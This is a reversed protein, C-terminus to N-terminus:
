LAEEIKRPNMPDTMDLVIRKKLYSNTISVLGRGDANMVDGQALPWKHLDHEYRREDIGVVGWDWKSRVLPKFWIQRGESNIYLNTATSEFTRNDNNVLILNKFDHFSMGAAAERAEFFGFATGGSKCAASDCSQRYVMAYFGHHLPCRAATFDVFSFNGVTEICSPPISPPIVPNLGCAFGPAVCTNIRKTGDSHGQIRIFQSADIGQQTPMLTTAVPWGSNQHTWLDNHMDIYIGGASILFSPSSAYIEVGTHRHMNFYPMHSKNIILDLIAEPIRYSGLAPAVLTDTGYTFQFPAPLEGFHETNGAMLVMRSTQGDIALMDTRDRYPLQRRYPVLRRLGNSSIAYRADLYNLLMEAALKVRQDESFEYLNQIAMVTYTQYPHSNYESFDNKFFEALHFLMWATMGNANNDYIAQYQSQERLQRLMLQNTLYRSGETMLIHNETEPHVGCVWLFNKLHVQNGKQSLFYNLIRYRTAPYILAPNDGFHYMLPIQSLLNFDYDGTRRCLFGADQFDTGPASYVTSAPSMMTRNFLDVDVGQTFKAMAKTALGGNAFVFAGLDLPAVSRLMLQGRAEFTQYSQQPTQAAPVKSLDVADALALTGSLFVALLIM